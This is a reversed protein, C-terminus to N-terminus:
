TPTCYLISSVTADENVKKKMKVRRFRSYLLNVFISDKFGVTFRISEDNAAIAFVVIVNGKSPITVRFCVEGEVGELM